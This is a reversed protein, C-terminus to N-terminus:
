FEKFITSSKTSLEIKGEYNRKAYVNELLVKQGVVLKSATEAHERWATVRVTATEDKLEIATLKVVEGKSTRIDRMIPPSSVEGEVCLEGSDEMLDKLQVKFLIPESVSIGTFSDVNIEPEGLQNPKIRANVIGVTSGRKLKSEIEDVKENWAVAFVEGTEDAVKFRLVKGPTQDSRTFNSVPFVATVNGELNINKQDLTLKDIKTNFKSASPFDQEDINQPDLDIQSREGIHLEPLGYRDQKTYGHSFKVIKGIKLEGSEVYNAKDNWLVVRLTGDNDAITLSALKGSKEGEFNKVPYIAIIRGTVTVNNLGAVMHGLSLRPKFTGDERPVEVGLEAAIMRLLSDEAILGGTMDKAASLRALLREHTIEPRKKIIQQIIEQSNM